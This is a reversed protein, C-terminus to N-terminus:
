NHASCSAPRTIPRCGPPGSTSASRSTRWRWRPLESACWMNYGISCEYWWGDDMAGRPSNTKSERRGPLSATPRRWTRCRWRVTFDGCDESLNWNNISGNESADEITGLLLRFTAEIQDRDAGSLVGADLIIDYAMAVHQFFHGEQVLSQNCARLTQPYGIKPDSLRRLFVAVKEADRRNGTLAWSFASALLNNEETTHFVFPGYNDNPDSAPPKAVQPVNWSEAVRLYTDQAPRPGPM